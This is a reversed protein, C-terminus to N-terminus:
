SSKRYEIARPDKNKPDMWCQGKHTKGCLKCPKAQVAVDGKKNPEKTKTEGKAKGKTKGKGLADIDMPVAGQSERNTVSDLFADIHERVAKLTTITASNLELSSGRKRKKRVPEGPM